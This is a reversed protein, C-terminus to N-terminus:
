IIFSSMVRSKIIHCIVFVCSTVYHVYFVLDWAYLGLAKVFKKNNNNIRLSSLKFFAQSVNGQM